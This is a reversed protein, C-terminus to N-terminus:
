VWFRPNPLLETFFDGKGGIVPMCLMARQNRWISSPNFRDSQRSLALTPPVVLLEAEGPLRPKETLPRAGGFTHGEHGDFVLRAHGVEDDPLADPFAVALDGVSGRDQEYMTGQFALIADDMDDRFLEFIEGLVEGIEGHRGSIEALLSKM